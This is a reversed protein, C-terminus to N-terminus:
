GRSPRARASPSASRRALLDVDSGAAIRGAAILEALGERSMIVVDAPAGGELQAKITQPGAGQSAGSATLVKLGTDQEFRPVLQQYPGSFGGSILVKIETPAPGPMALAANLM